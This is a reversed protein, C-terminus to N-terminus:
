FESVAKGDDRETSRFFLSFVWNHVCQRLGTIDKRSRFELHCRPDTPLHGLSLHTTGLM